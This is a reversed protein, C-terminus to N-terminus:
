KKITAEPEDAYRPDQIIALKELYDVEINVCDFEALVKGSIKYVGRGKFPYKRAIPPFHVTDIHDGEIDIFNGFFMLDGRSTPTKKVTVYYGYVTVRKGVYSLLDKALVENQIPEKLLDFPNCLPFGIYQLEDFADEMVSSVLEPTKYSVKESKFLTHVHEELVVKHVKM